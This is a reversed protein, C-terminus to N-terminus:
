IKSLFNSTSLGGTLLSVNMSSSQSADKMFESRPGGTTGPTNSISTAEKTYMCRTGDKEYFTTFQAKM